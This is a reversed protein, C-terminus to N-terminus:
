AGKVLRERLIRLQSGHRFLLSFHSRHPGMSRHRKDGNRVGAGITKVVAVPGARRAHESALIVDGRARACVASVGHAIQQSLLDHM